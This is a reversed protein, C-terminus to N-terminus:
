PAIKFKVKDILSEGVYLEVRYDGIPWDNNPKVLSFEGMNEHEGLRVGAEDIPFDHPIGEADECIWVGKIESGGKIHELDFFVFIEPTDPKFTTKPTRTKPLDTMVINAFSPQLTEAQQAPVCAEVVVMSIMLPLAIRVM